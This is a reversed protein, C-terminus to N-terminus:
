RLLDVVQIYWREHSRRFPWMWFYESTTFHRVYRDMTQPNDIAEIGFYEAAARLSEEYAEREFKMRFYSLFGPLPFFLYLFTFLPRTYKKAQRMHVREHRLIMMRNEPAWVDWAEPTYVTTGVTTVFTQLFAKMEGFTIIKLFVDICRMMWSDAKKVRKYAPFESRVGQELEEFTM